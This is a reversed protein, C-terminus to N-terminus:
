FWCLVIAVYKTITIHEINVMWPFEGPEVEEGDLIFDTLQKASYKACATKLIAIM